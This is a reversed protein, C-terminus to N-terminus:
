RKTNRGRTHTYIQMGALVYMRTGRGLSVCNMQQTCEKYKYKHFDFATSRWLILSYGKKEGLILM